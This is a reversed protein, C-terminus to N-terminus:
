VKAHDHSQSLSEAGKWLSFVNRHGASRLQQVFKNSDAGRQCIFLYTLDRDLKLRDPDLEELTWRLLTRGRLKNETTTDNEIECQRRIDVFVLGRPSRTRLVSWHLEFENEEEPEDGADCQGAHAPSQKHCGAAEESAQNAFGKRAQNEEHHHNHGSCNVWSSSGNEYHEKKWIPLRAKIADIVYRCAAFAEARHVATVGVWVALEGVKLMGVRHQCSVDIIEFKEKAERVVRGGEKQALTEFSEYELGTVLHGENQKRVWGEFTVMAGARSNSLEQGLSHANLASKSISFLDVM